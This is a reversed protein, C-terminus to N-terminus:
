AKPPKKENETGWSKLWAHVDDSDVVDGNKVSDVAELTERWKESEAVKRAVYEKVAENILWNKSRHLKGALDELSEQLDDQIRVSTVSM